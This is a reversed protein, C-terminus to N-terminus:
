PLDDLCEWCAKDSWVQSGSTRQFSADKLSYGSFLCAYPGQSPDYASARCGEFHACITGCNEANADHPYIETKYLRAGASVTGAQNCHYQTEFDKNLTCRPGSDTLGPVISPPVSGCYTCDSCAMDYWSTSADPEEILGADTLPREYFRCPTDPDSTNYGFSQCTYWLHCIFACDQIQDQPMGNYTIGWADGSELHGKKNCKASAPAAEADHCAGPYTFGAPCTPLYGISSSTSTSSPSTPTSSQDFLRFQDLISASGSDILAVLALALSVTQQITFHSLM